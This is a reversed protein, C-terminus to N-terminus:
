RALAAIIPCHDSPHRDSAYVAERFGRFDTSARADLVIHDIFDHYRADCHPEINRDTLKLKPNQTGGDDLKAWIPDGPQALRRNWDGLVIFRTSSTSATEVWKEVIPM